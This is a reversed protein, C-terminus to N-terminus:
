TQHPGLPLFGRPNTTYLINRVMFFLFSLEGRKEGGGRMTTTKSRQDDYNSAAVRTDRMMAKSMSAASTTEGRM